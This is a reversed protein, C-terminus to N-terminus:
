KTYFKEFSKLVLSRDGGFLSVEAIIKIPEGEVIMKKALNYDTPWVTLETEDGFQDSIKYKVMKKGQWRGKKKIVFERLESKVIVEFMASNKEPMSKISAIPSSMGTFFGPYLEGLSGSIVEALVEREKILFEARDWEEDSLKFSLEGLYDLPNEKKKEKKRIFNSVKTRLKVANECIVKRSLNLSDFAGGKALVEVRTKNVLRGQTKAFFESLSEYPQNEVVNDIAKEGLGKIASFGMVITKEDLVEYGSNSRNIDPPLYKIGLRRCEMKASSIEEPSTLSNKLTEIKLKAALFAAPFYRKLYATYYGNISYFIAHSNSTAFGSALLFNHSSHEVEIDYGQQKGIYNIRIIKRYRSDEQNESRKENNNKRFFEIKEKFYNEWLDQLEGYFNKNIEVGGKENNRKGVDSRKGTNERFSREWSTTSFALTWRNRNNGENSSKYFRSAKTDERLLIDCKEQIGNKTFRTGDVTGNQVKQSLMTGEENDGYIERPTGREMKTICGSKAKPYRAQSVYDKSNKLRYKENRKVQKVPITNSKTNGKKEIHMTQMNESTVESRKPNDGTEEWMSIRCDKIGIIGNKCKKSSGLLKKQTSVNERTDSFNDHLKQLDMESIRFVGKDRELIEWLPLKGENTIWKHDLTCKEITGDDFEVEWLPVIGHDHLDVIKTKQIERDNDVCFVYDKNSCDQVKKIGGDTIILTDKNITKNFGYGSFKQVVTKWIELALEYEMGHTDMAGKIFDIELQEALEPKKGKLKTYKRLGDAKNLDWGAVNKAVSMLQEEFLCIGYTEELCKLSPHLYTVARKGNRREIFPDRDDKSSPRGLANVIAIDLIKNPRIRKCLNQMMGSKGLQFICKTDGKQIMKYTEVDNLPIDEMKKPTNVGLKRMNRFTEDIVDLTSIALFDMKALGVNESRNKEYQTATMGNKDVRLPAFNIIPENAIVMAAAHTSFEKELGVIEAAYEMLKPYVEAFDRLKKSAELADKLTKIPKGNGDELPIADKIQASVRWYDPVRMSRTLDPIISKATYTNINSVQACHDAGYKNRVYDMVIDRGASTFDTDIDPLDTKYANQFREFLLGYKIPDVGHIDLLYAVMCGGDSGRGVGVLIGNDKAWKIFDSVILMYSSFKNSELVAVEKKVRNWRERRDKKNLHGFKKKFNEICKYRMYSIDEDIEPFEQNKWEMFVDYDSKSKVDFQPLRHGITEMYDPPECMDAIEVTGAIAKTAIKEGYKESLFDHIQEPTKFYFESIGYRHRSPDDLAKKDNIALLVDHYEEAAHTRYHVDIGVTLPIDYKEHLEIMATNLADQDIRENKLAHPQLELFLRGPFINRLVDLKEEAAEYGENLYPQAVYGSACATTAIIGESYESLDDMSIRPWVRGIFVLHNQFGIYCLKLLNKWGEENQALLVLHRRKEYTTIKRGTEAVKGEYTDTVYAEMGPIYKVGTEKYMNYADLCSALTGHETIAIAKQNAAKAMTFLDKVSTMADLMSGLSTHTHLHVFDM